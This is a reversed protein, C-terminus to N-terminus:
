FRLPIHIILSIKDFNFELDIMNEHLNALMLTMYSGRSQLEKPVMEMQLRIHLRLFEVWLQWKRTEEARM